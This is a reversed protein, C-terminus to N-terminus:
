EHRLADMPDIRAARRAPIYCAVLAVCVLLLAVAAYTPPDYSSVNVLLSSLIRMVAAAALLGIGLGAAVLTVAQRMVLSVVSRRQAGLAMRIGVEHRRRGASFSVTGYVGVVALLLGLGGLAAGFNAGMRILFFGNAGQLSQEMSMVDYIPMDPDLDRVLAEVAPALSEPRVRTRLQLVHVSKYNQSQPLFFYMQPPELLETMKADRVVGVVTVLPGGPGQYSFHRGLANQHPWFRQAMTRNVAAVPMSSPTDSETFARGSLIPMRMNSFYDPSVCNYPVGPVRSGPPLTQGEAYVLAGDSYYGMPQSFALSDSQVGPITKARRLLERFFAEARPQDYGQLGPDLGVNLVNRPDFGLDISQARTLSRAFLGAAVLVVLSGAVQAVVLGNRLLHRGGNGVIGRGVERLSENLDTRSIRWAPALGAVVGALIAASATYAFVRWDFELALRVQFDGVPRLNELGRVVWNGLLAGGVGGAVALLLSETLLQRILRVRSAGMAARVAIEKQRAASRALLLNAVNICAVLLVLGVMVLFVMVVLPISTAAAPEPRAIREPFVRVIQGKDADPYAHALRDAIVQLGAQAQKISVGPKLVGFTRVERDDRSTFFDPHTGIRLMGIPVYADMEVVNYLGPFEQPVIGIITVAHGDLSVSRGIVNRDGGFRRRWYSNGLVVVPGSGPADGEGPMILRGVAAHIGLMTFFNSSVYSALLRDAHGRTGLGVVGIVYGTMDTFASSHERYDLYDPYSIENPEGGAKNQVAIVTLRGSDKVPLPRFMFANGLSFIATNAGIGLALTLVALATFGPDKWLMRLGFRVDRM